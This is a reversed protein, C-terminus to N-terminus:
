PAPRDTARTPRLSCGSASDHPDLDFSVELESPHYPPEVKYTVVEGQNFGQDFELCKVGDIDLRKNRNRKLCAQLCNRPPPLVNLLRGKMFRGTCLCDGVTASGYTVIARTM